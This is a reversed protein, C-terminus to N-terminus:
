FCRPFSNCKTNADTECETNANPHRYIVDAQPDPDAHRESRCETEHPILLFRLSGFSAEAVCFVLLNLGCLTFDVLLRHQM